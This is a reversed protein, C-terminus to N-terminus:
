DTCDVHRQSMIDPGTQRHQKFNMNELFAVFISSIKVTSKVSVVYRWISTSSKKLNQPRRLIKGKGGCGPSDLFYINCFRSWYQVFFDISTDLETNIDARFVLHMCLKFLLVSM